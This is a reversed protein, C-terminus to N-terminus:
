GKTGIRITEVVHHWLVSLKGIIFFACVCLIFYGSVYMTCIDIIIRKEGFACKGNIYRHLNCVSMPM